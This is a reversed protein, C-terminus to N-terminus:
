SRWGLSVCWGVEFMYLTMFNAVALAVVFASCCLPMVPQIPPSGAPEKPQKDGEVEVVVEVLEKQSPKAKKMPPQQAHRVYLSLLLRRQVGFCVRVGM